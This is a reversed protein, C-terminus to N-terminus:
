RGMGFLLLVAGVLPIAGLVRDWAAQKRLARIEERAETLASRYEALADKLLAISEAAQKEREDARIREELTAAEQRKAAALGERLEGIEQNKAALAARLTEVLAKAADGDRLLEELKIANEADLTLSDQGSAWVPFCIALILLAGAGVWCRLPARLDPGCNSMPPHRICLIRMKRVDMREGDPQHAEGGKNRLSGEGRWGRM